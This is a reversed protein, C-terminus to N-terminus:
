IFGELCSLIVGLFWLVSQELKLITDTNLEKWSPLFDQSYKVGGVRGQSHLSAKIESFTDVHLDLGWGQVQSVSSAEWVWSDLFLVTKTYINLINVIGKPNQTLYKATPRQM